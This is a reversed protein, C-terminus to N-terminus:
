PPKILLLFYALLPEYNLECSSNLLFIKSKIASGKSRFHYIYNM